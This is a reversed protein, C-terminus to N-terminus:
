KQITNEGSHSACIVSLEQANLNYKEIAGSLAMPLAQLIKVSSRPYIAEQVEGM